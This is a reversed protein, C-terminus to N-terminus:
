KISHRVFTSACLDDASVHERKGLERETEREKETKKDTQRNTQRQRKINIRAYTQRGTQRSKRTDRKINSLRVSTRATLSVVCKM